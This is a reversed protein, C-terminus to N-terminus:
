ISQDGYFTIDKKFVKLRGQTQLESLFDDAENQPVGAMYAFEEMTIKATSNEPKKRSPTATQLVKNIFFTLRTELGSHAYVFAREDIERIRKTLVQLLGRIYEPDEHVKEWFIERTLVILETNSSATVTASRNQDDILSLEGFLEGRGLTALEFEKGTEPDTQSIRVTGKSILYAEHGEDGQRFIVSNISELHCEFCGIFSEILQANEKFAGFAWQYVPDLPSVMPVIYEGISPIWIQESLAEFGLRHYITATKVNVTVVIHTVGWARGVDVSMKFLSRFVDRRNRFEATIALMGACGILPPPGGNAKAEAEIRKRYDSFDYSEDGPLLVESDCNLRVTGVSTNGSYAIVNLARPVADFHDVIMEGVIDKFYGEGEVYVLHRLKYVDVLEKASKAVKIRVAM